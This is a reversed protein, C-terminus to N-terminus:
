ESSGACSPRGLARQLRNSVIDRDKGPVSEAPQPNIPRAPPERLDITSLGRGSDEIRALLEGL